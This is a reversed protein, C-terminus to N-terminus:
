SDWKYDSISVGTYYYKVIEDWKKGQKALYEAGYQSMGVDHGFGVVTFTFVGGGFSVDFDSSRLGFLSRIDDGGVSKGCLDASLVTGSSSRTKVSIWKAPDADFKADKYGGQVATKFDNQKVVISSKYDSANKDWASNVPVLYPLDNGWVNKSSETAGQSVAFFEADIPKGGYTIIKNKVAMVDNYIKNWDKEFDNGWESQAQQKSIYADFHHYDDSLDAGSIASAASSPNALNKDRYYCAFTFAAAAQAKIAEDYYSAPIEAAVVGCIYDVAPIVEVTGTSTRLIKFSEQTLNTESDQESGPVPSGSSSYKEQGHQVETGMLLSVTPLILMIITFIAIFRKFDKM